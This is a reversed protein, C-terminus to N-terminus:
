GGHARLVGPLPANESEGVRHDANDEARAPRDRNDM